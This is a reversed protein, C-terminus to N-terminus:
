CGSCGGNFDAMTFTKFQGHVGSADAGPRCLGRIQVIKFDTDFVSITPFGLPDMLRHAESIKFHDAVAHAKIALLDHEVADVTVFKACVPAPRHGFLIHKPINTEKLLVVNIGYACGMIGVLAVPILQAVTVPDVENIFGVQFGM